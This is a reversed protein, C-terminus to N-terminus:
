VCLGNYRDPQSGGPIHITLWYQLNHGPFLNVPQLSSTDRVPFVTISPTYPKDRLKRESILEYNTGAENSLKLYNHHRDRDIRVLTPDHVLLEPVLVAPSKWNVRHSEWAGGAQYWPLVVRVDIQGSPIKDKSGFLDSVEVIVGRLHREKSRIVFSAPEYENRCAKIEIRKATHSNLQTTLLIPEAGIPEVVFVDIEGENEASTLSCSLFLSVFLSMM